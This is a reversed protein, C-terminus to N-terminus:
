WGEEFMKLKLECLVSSSLSLNRLFCFSTSGLVIFDIDLPILLGSTVSWRVASCRNPFDKSSSGSNHFSCMGALEPVQCISSTRNALTFQYCSLQFLFLLVDSSAVRPWATTVTTSPDTSSSYPQCQGKEFVTDMCNLPNSMIQQACEDLM